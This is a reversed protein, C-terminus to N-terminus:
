PTPTAAGAEGLRFAILENQTTPPLDAAPMFPGGAPVLLLDGAIALSANIGAGTQYQWVEHGTATDFGRVIGDLGGGFVVDNAVTAGASFFTPV